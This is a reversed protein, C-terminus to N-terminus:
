VSKKTMTTSEHTFSLSPTKQEKTLPKVFTTVTTPVQSSTKTTALQPIKQPDPLPIKITTPASSHIKSMSTTATPISRSQTIPYITKRSSNPLEEKTTSIASSTKTSSTTAVFHTYFPVTTEKGIFTNNTTLQKQETISSLTPSSTTSIRESSNNFQSKTLLTHTITLTPSSVSSTHMRKSPSESKSTTGSSQTISSTPSPVSLTSSIRKSPSESKSTTVPPQTISSTAITVSGNLIRKSISESISTTVSPQIISSTPMPLSGDIPVHIRSSTSDSKSTTVSSRSISPTTPLVSGDTSIRKSSSESKSTTMSIDSSPNRDNTSTNANTWVSPSFNPLSTEQTISSGPILKSLTTFLVPMSSSIRESTKSKRSTVTIDINETTYKISSDTTPTPIEMSSFNKGSTIENDPFNENFHQRSHTSNGFIVAGAVALTILCSIFLVTLVSKKYKTQKRYKSSISYESSMYNEGKIPVNYSGDKTSCETFEPKVDECEKNSERNEKLEDRKNLDSFEHLSTDFVNNYKRGKGKWDNDLSYFDM